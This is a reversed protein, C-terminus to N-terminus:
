QEKDREAHIIAANAMGLARGVDGSHILLKGGATEEEVAKKIGVLAEILEDRQKRYREADAKWNERDSAQQLLLKNEVELENIRDDLTILAFSTDSISPSSAMSWIDNQVRWRKAIERAEKLEM